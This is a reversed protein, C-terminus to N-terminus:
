MLREKNYVNLNAMITSVNLPIKIPLTYHLAAHLVAHSLLQLQVQRPWRPQCLLLVIPETQTVEHLVALAREAVTVEVHSISPLIAIVSLM